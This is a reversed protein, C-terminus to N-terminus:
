KSVKSDLIYALYAECGKRILKHALIASIVNTACNTEDAMVDHESLWDMGFILDFESFPLLM